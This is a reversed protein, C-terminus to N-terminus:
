FPIDDDFPAAKNEYSQQAPRHSQQSQSGDRRELLHIVNGIIKTAQREIGEKDSYKETKLSGEVYLKHGKQVYREAIEAVKGFLVIRHWEVEESGDQKQKSTAISLNCIKMGSKGDKTEISGVNGIIQAKNLGSM